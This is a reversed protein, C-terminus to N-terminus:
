PVFFRLVALPFHLPTTFYELPSLMGFDPPPEFLRYAGPAAAASGIFSEDRSFGNSSGDLEEFGAFRLNLSDSAHGPLPHQPAEESVERDSSAKM